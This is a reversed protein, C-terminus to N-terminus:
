RLRPDLSYKVTRVIKVKRMMPHQPNILVNPELPMPASPVLLCLTRNEAAWDNGLVQTSEEGRGYARLIVQATADQVSEDPVDLEILERTGFAAAPVHMLVELVAQAPNPSTYLMGTGELNWRGPYVAAGRGDLPDYTALKAYDANPNHLRWVRM